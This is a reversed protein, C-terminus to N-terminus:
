CFILFIAPFWKENRDFNYQSLLAYKQNILLILIHLITCFTSHNVSNIPGGVVQQILHVVGISLNIVRHTGPEQIQRQVTWDEQQYRHGM